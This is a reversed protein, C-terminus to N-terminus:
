KRRLEEEWHRRPRHKPASHSTPAPSAALPAPSRPASCLLAARGDHRRYRLVVEPLLQPQMRGAAGEAFHQRRAAPRRSYRRPPPPLPARSLGLGAFSVGPQTEQLAKVKRLVCLGAAPGAASRSLSTFVESPEPPTALGLSRRTPGGPARGASGPGAPLEPGVAPAGGPETDTDKGEAPGAAQVPSSHSSM